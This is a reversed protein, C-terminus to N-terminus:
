SGAALTGKYGFTVWRVGDCLLAVYNGAGSSLTMSVGGTQVTGDRVIVESANPDITITFSGTNYIMISRAAYGSAAPLNITETAGYWVTHMNSTWIPSLPNDTSPSSHTSTQTDPVEYDTGPTADVASQGSEGWKIVRGATPSAPGTVPNTLNGSHYVNRTGTADRFKFVGSESWFDGQAPTFTIAVTNDNNGYYTGDAGTSYIHAFYADKGKIDAYADDAANRVEITSSSNKLKPGGTGVQFTSSSTGALTAYLTDTYTKLTAKLNAWSLGKLAWTDASDSLPIIDADVPTTKGTKGHIMPGLDAILGVDILNDDVTDGPLDDLDSLGGVEIGELATELAQLAAKITQNDAITTGTFQGLNVSGDAVGSLTILDDVSLSAQTPYAPLAGFEYGDNAANRRIYQLAGSATLSTGWASGTSLPIGAGPYTMSGSGQVEEWVTAWDAGVGPETSAGATHSSTCIYIKGGHVAATEQTVYPLGTKWAKVVQKNDAALNGGSAHISNFSPNDGTGLGLATAALAASAANLFTKIDNSLTVGALYTLDPDLPQYTNKGTYYSWLNDVTINRINGNNWVQLEDNATLASGLINTYADFRVTAANAGCPVLMLAILFCVLRKM